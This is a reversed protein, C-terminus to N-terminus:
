AAAEAFADPEHKLVADVVATSFAGAVKRNTFQLITTYQIRGNQDKIAVGDRLQPKAPLQAWRSDGKQHLTIDRIELKLEDIVIVAFGRLTNRELARFDTCRITLKSSM